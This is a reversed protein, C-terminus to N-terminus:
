TLGEIGVPHGDPGQPSHIEIDRASLEHGDHTGGAAALRRKQVQNGPEVARAVSLDHQGPQLEAASVLVVEGAYPALVDPDDELEEVQHLLHRRELVDCQGRRDRARSSGARVPPCAVKEVQEPDAVARRAASHV